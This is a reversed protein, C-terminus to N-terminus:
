DLVKWIRRRNTRGVEDLLLHAHEVSEAGIWMPNDSDLIVVYRELTGDKLHAGQNGKKARNFGREGNGDGDHRNGLGEPRPAEECVVWKPALRTTCGVVLHRVAGHDHFAGMAVGMYPSLDHAAIDQVVIRHRVDEVPAALARALGTRVAEVGATPAGLAPMPSLCGLHLAALTGTPDSGVRLLPGRLWPAKHTGPDFDWLLPAIGTHAALAAWLTQSAARIGNLAHSWALQAHASTPTYTGPTHKTRDQGIELVPTRHGRTLACAVDQGCAAAAAHLHAHLADFAHLATPTEM